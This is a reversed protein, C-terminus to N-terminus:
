TVAAALKRHINVFDSTVTHIRGLETSKELYPLNEGGLFCSPSPGLSLNLDESHYHNVDSPSQGSNIISYIASANEAASRKRFNM